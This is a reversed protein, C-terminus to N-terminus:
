LHRSVHFPAGELNKALEEESRLTNRKRVYEVGERICAVHDGTRFEEHGRLVAVLHVTIVCYM